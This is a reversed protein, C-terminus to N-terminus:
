KWPNAILRADCDPAFRRIIRHVRQAANWLNFRVFGFQVVVQDIYGEDFCSFGDNLGENDFEITAVGIRVFKVTLRKKLAEYVERRM